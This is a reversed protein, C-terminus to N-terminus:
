RYRKNIEKIVGECAKEIVEALPANVNLLTARDGLRKALDEYRELQGSLEEFTVEQKRPHIVEADGTLIFVQDPKPMLKFVVRALWSPGGYRYRIPDVLLDDYYRDCIVVSIKSRAHRLVTLSALWWDYFLMGLKMVSTVLGRPKAAHPDAVSQGLDERGKIGYPRWHLSRSHLRMQKLQAKVGNIVSSKGSGDPGLFAVTPMPPVLHWKLEVYWHSIKKTITQLPQAKLRQKFLGKRLQKTMQTVDEPRKEDLMKKLEGAPEEGFAEELCIKFEEGDNAYAENVLEIHRENFNGGSLVSTLWALFADHALRPRYVDDFGISVANWFRDVELYCLGRWVFEPIFDVQGWMYYHQQVYNRKIRTVPEGFHSHMVARVSEADRVGMDWDSTRGEDVLVADRRLLAVNGELEQYFRMAQESSKLSAKTNDGM